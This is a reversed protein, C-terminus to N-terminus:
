GLGYRRGSSLLMIHVAECGDTYTKMYINGILTFGLTPHKFWSQIRWIVTCPMKPLTGFEALLSLGKMNEATSYTVRVPV